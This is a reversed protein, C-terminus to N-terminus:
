GELRAGVSSVCCGNGVKYSALALSTTILAMMARLDIDPLSKGKTNAPIMTDRTIVIPSTHTRTIGAGTTRTGPSERQETMYYSAVRERNRRKRSRMKEIGRKTYYHSYGNGLSVVAVMM